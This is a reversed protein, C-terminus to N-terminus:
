KKYTKWTLPVKEPNILHYIAAYLAIIMDTDNRFCYLGYRKCHINYLRCVLLCTYECADIERALHILVHWILSHPMAFKKVISPSEFYTRVLVFLNQSVKLNATLVIFRSVEECVEEFTRTQIKEGIDKLLRLIHHDDLDMVDEDVKVMSLEFSEEHFETEIMKNVVLELRGFTVPNKVNELDLVDDIWIILSPCTYVSYKLCTLFIKKVCLKMQSDDIMLVVKLNHMISDFDGEVLKSELDELSNVSSNM